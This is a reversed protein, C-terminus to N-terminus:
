STTIIDKWLGIPVDSEKVFQWSIKSEGNLSLYDHVAPSLDIGADINGSSTHSM